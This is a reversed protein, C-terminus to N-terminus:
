DWDTGPMYGGLSRAVERGSGALILAFSVFMTFFWGCAACDYKAVSFMARSSCSLKHEDTLKGPSFLQVKDCTRSWINLIEAQRVRNTCLIEYFLGSLSNQIWKSQILTM